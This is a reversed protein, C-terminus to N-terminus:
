LKLGLFVPLDSLELVAQNLVALALFPFPSNLYFLGVFCCCSFLLSLTAQHLTSVFSPLRKDSVFM